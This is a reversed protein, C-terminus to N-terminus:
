RDHSKLSGHVDHSQLESSPAKNAWWNVRYDSHYSCVTRGALARLASVVLPVDSAVYLDQM